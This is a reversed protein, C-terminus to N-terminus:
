IQTYCFLETSVEAKDDSAWNANQATDKCFPVPSSVACMASSHHDTSRYTIACAINM